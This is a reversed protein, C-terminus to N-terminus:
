KRGIYRCVKSKYKLYEDGFVTPLYKEEQMIQLHLMIVAFLSFALLVWNFYMLLIGIYVLDFGVFAPNRSYGYVGNTIMETKDNEAIGARWSDKMTMVSAAFIVDGIVGFIIGTIFVAKPVPSNKLIISLLEVIVISYTALKLVLETYFVKDKQKGKAIQDTKIGKKKQLLLKGIYISYFILLIRFGIIKMNIRWTTEKIAIHITYCINM